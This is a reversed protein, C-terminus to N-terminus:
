CDGGEPHGRVLDKSLQFASRTRNRVHEAPVDMGTDGLGLNSIATVKFRISLQCNKILIIPEHGARHVTCCAGSNMM